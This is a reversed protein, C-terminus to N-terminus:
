IIRIDVVPFNDNLGALIQYPTDGIGDNNIDEGQYDNWYNGMTGNDFKISDSTIDAEYQINKSCNFINSFIIGNINNVTFTIGVSSNFKNNFIRMNENHSDIFICNMKSFCDNYSFDLDVNNTLRIHSIM